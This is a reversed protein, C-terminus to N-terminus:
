LWCQSYVICHWWRCHLCWTYTGWYSRDSCDWTCSLYYSHRQCSHNWGCNWGTTGTHLHNRSSNGCEACSCDDSCYCSGNRRCRYSLSLIDIILFYQFCLIIIGMALLIAPDLLFGLLGAASASPSSSTSSTSPPTCSSTTAGAM